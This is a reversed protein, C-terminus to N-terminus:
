QWVQCARKKFREVQLYSSDEDDWDVEAQELKEIRKTLIYLAKNLKKIQEDTRKNGTSGTTTTATEENQETAAANTADTANVFNKNTKRRAKLEEIITKINCYVFEPQAKIREIVNKISKRFGKSKVFDPHVSYYYKILKSDILKEMDASPEAERCTKILEEYEPELPAPEAPKDNQAAAPSETNVKNVSKANASSSEAQLEEQQKHPQDKKREPSETLDLVSTEEKEPPKSQKSRESSATLDYTLENQNTKQQQKAKQWAEDSSGLLTTPKIRKVPSNSVTTKPPLHIKYNNFTALSNCTTTTTSSCHLAASSNLQTSCPIPTITTNSFPNDGFSTSTPPTALLQIPPTTSATNLSQIGMILPVTQPNPNPPTTSSKRKRNQMLSSSQHQLISAAASSSSPSAIVRQTKLSSNAMNQAEKTNLTFASNIKLLSTASVQHNNNTVPLAASSIAPMVKTKQTKPANNQINNTNQKDLSNIAASSRM